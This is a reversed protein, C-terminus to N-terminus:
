FIQSEVLYNYAAACFDIDIGQMKRRLEEKDRIDALFFRARPDDLYEQDLFFIANENNDLGIVEAPAYRKDTLLQRILESGMTGCAGTVLINKDTFLKM